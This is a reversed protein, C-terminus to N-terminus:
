FDLFFVNANKTYTQVIFTFQKGRKKQTFMKM